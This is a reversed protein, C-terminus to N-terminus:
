FFLGIPGVFVSTKLCCCKIRSGLIRFFPSGTTVALTASAVHSLEFTLCFIFAAAFVVRTTITVNGSAAIKSLKTGALFGYSAPRRANRGVNPIVIRTPKSACLSNLFRSRERLM